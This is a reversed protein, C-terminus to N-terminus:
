GVVIYFITADACIHCAIPLFLGGVWWRLLGLTLGYLGALAAGLLGPPYGDYHGIGFLITTAVLAVGANWENAIAGWLLGRFAIEELAANAISFVICALVLNPIVDFPLRGVLETVDPRVIAHFAFLVGTAIVALAVACASPALGVDGVALEPLTRRLAPITLVVVGYTIISPWVLPTPGFAAMVFLALFLLGHIAETWPSTSAQPLLQPSDTTPLGTNM